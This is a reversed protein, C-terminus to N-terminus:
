PGSRRAREKQARSSQTTEGFEGDDDDGGAWDPPYIDQRVFAHFSSYPWDGIKKVYGHKMPNFHIYDVHREFDREDRIQHEWVQGSGTSPVPAAV